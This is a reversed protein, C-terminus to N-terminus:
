CPHILLFPFSLTPTNLWNSGLKAKTSLGSQGLRLIWKNLGANVQEDASEVGAKLVVRKKRCPDRCLATWQERKQGEIGRLVGQGAKGEWAWMDEQPKARCQKMQNFCGHRVAAATIIGAQQDKHSTTDASM